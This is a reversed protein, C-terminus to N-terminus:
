IWSSFTSISLSTPMWRLFSYDQSCLPFITSYSYSFRSDFLYSTFAIWCRYTYSIFFSKRIYRYRLYSLFQLSYSYFM